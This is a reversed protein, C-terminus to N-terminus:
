SQTLFTINVFICMERYKKTSLNILTSLRFGQSFKASIQSSCLNITAIGCDADALARLEGRLTGMSVGTAVDHSM